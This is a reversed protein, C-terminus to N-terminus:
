RVLVFRSQHMSLGRNYKGGISRSWASQVSKRVDLKGETSVVECEFAYCGAGVKGDLSAIMCGDLAIEVGEYM